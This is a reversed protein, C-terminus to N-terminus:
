WVIDSFFLFFLFLSFLVSLTGHSLSSVHVGGGHLGEKKEKEPDSTRHHICKKESKHHIGKERTKWRFLYVGYSKESQSRPTPRCVSFLPTGRHHRISKKGRHSALVYVVGFLSLQWTVGGEGLLLLM